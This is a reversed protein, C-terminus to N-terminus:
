SKFQELYIDFLEDETFYKAYNTRSDFWLHENGIVESKKYANVYVWNNYKICEEKTINASEIAIGNVTDNYQAEKHKDILNQM